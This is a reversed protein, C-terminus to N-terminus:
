RRRSAGYLLLGLAAAVGAGLLQARTAATVLWFVLGLSAVAVLGGAPVVFGAAGVDTRRRLVPLAACTSAYSLLRAIVSVTAAYVFSGSLALLLVVASSLYLATDPTHFRPHTSALWRPLEARRAKAFLLRPAMMLTVNLNGLISVLAGATIIVAGVPGLFRATADTLPRSADALGPLTGIAVVQVLVYVTTVVGIALLLARPLDRAPDRAEGGAIVMTEFGAFAYLLLLVTASFADLTPAPGPTYRTPELFFLGVVVFLALPALKAVTFVNSAVATGRVGRLNVATLGGVLTAVVAVRFVGTDAGPLFFTLYSAFLNCNAALSAVRAIWMMWGVEFGVLPGFATRAYLYPGGTEGFRSSVEAFCLVILLVLLACGAFAALSYVGTRAYAVAPLGFIGAGIVTNIAIGVLDWKRIVRVLGEATPTPGTSSPSM